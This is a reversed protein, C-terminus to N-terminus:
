SRAAYAGILIAAEKLTRYRARNSKMLDSGIRSDAGIGFISLLMGRNVSPDNIGVSALKEVETMNLLRLPGLQARIQEASLAPKTHSPADVYNPDLRAATLVQKLRDNEDRQSNYMEEFNVPKIQLSQENNNSM